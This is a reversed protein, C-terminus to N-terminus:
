PDSFSWRYEDLDLRQRDDFAVGEKGLLLKQVWAGEGSSRPSIQGRSNVVRHWPVQSDGPLAAMSFGVTRASCGALRGIQGYTVVHGSPVQSVLAYIRAYLSLTSSEPRSM